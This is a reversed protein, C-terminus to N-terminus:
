FLDPESPPKPKASNCGSKTGSSGDSATKTDHCHKHLLQWNEYEDKGGLSKPIIHDIEIVDDERFFLNCHACKGKQKKLLIAVRSPMEPHNGMRTSWYVLNGDYPSSEGKVKVHRM